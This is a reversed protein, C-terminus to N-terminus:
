HSESETGPMGGTPIPTGATPQFLQNWDSETGRRGRRQRLNRPSRQAPYIATTTLSIMNRYFNLLAPNSETASGDQYHLQYRLTFQLADMTQWTFAVDAAAVHLSQDFSGTALNLTRMYQYGLTTSLTMRLRRSVPIAGTLAFAETLFTTGVSISPQIQHQYSFQTDFEESRQFRILGGATPHWLQAFDTPRLAQVVGAQLEATWTPTFEHRWSATFSNLLQQESTIQQTGVTYPFAVTYNTGLRGSIEDTSWRRTMSFGLDGMGTQAQPQESELPHFYNLTLDENFRWQGSIEWALGQGLAATLFHVNGAPQVDVTGASADRNVLNNQKGQDVTLNLNLQTRQSSQIAGVWTLRNAWSIAESHQFYLTLLFDYGLQQAFRSSGYFMRIGPTLEAFGDPEAAADGPPPNRPRSELNDTFGTTAAVQGQVQVQARAPSPYLLVCALLLGGFRKM